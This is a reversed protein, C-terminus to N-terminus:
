TPGTPSASQPLPPGTAVFRAVHPRAEVADSKLRERLDPSLQVDKRHALVAESAPVAITGVIQAVAGNGRGFVAGRTTVDPRPWRTRRRM